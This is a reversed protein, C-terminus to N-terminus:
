RSVIPFDIWGTGGRSDKIVLYVRGDTPLNPKNPAFLDVDQGNTVRGATSDYLLRQDSGFRGVTTFFSVWVQERLPNGNVDQDFPNTEQSSAPADAVLKHKPCDTIKDETCPPITIGVAPDIEKGEYKIVGLVPNANTAEEYAYVRSLGIVYEDPGLQKGTDDFCGIPPSQRSAASPLVIEPHGACAIYFAIALGYPQPAGEVVPHSTILNDALHVSFKPSEVLFASIDRGTFAGADVGQASADAGADAGGSFLTSFCLYYLDDAPNECITPLWFTRMPRTKAARGDVALMELEVTDGPKAYPKDARVALVRVSNVVNEPDFSGGVGCSSLTFALVLATLAGIVSLFRLNM